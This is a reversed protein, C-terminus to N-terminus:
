KGLRAEIADLAPSLLVLYEYKLIDYVNLGMPLMVQVGPVNRASLELARNEEPTVFLAQNLDFAEMVKVFDKTKPATHPYADLIVLQGSAVKSSLAMKLALRRV